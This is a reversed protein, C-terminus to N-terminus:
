RKPEVDGPVAIGGFLKVSHRWLLISIEYEMWYSTQRPTKTKEALYRSPPKRAELASLLTRILSRAQAKRTTKGTKRPRRRRGTNARAAGDITL